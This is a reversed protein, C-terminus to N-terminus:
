ESLINTCIYIYSLSLTLSLICLIYIYITSISVCIHKIIVIYCFLYHPIFSTHCTAKRKGNEQIFLNLQDMNQHYVIQAVDLNSIIGCVSGIIYAWLCASSLVLLVCVRQEAPNTASIDGYGVSYTHSKLFKIDLFKFKFSPNREVYPNKMHIYFYIYYIYKKKRIIFSHCLYGGGGEIIEGKERYMEIVLCGGVCVCV